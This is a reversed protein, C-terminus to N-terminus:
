AQWWGRPNLLDRIEDDQFARIVRDTNKWFYEAHDGALNWARAITEVGPYCLPAGSLDPTNPTVLLIEFQVAGGGEALRPWVIQLLGKKSILRGEVEAQLVNGYGPENTVREALGNLIGEPLKREPNCLAAM